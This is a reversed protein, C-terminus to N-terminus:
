PVNPEIPTAELATEMNVALVYPDSPTVHLWKRDSKDNLYTNPTIRHAESTDQKQKLM